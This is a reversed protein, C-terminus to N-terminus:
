KRLVTNAAAKKGAFTVSIADLGRRLVGAEQLDALPLPATELRRLVAARNRPLEARRAVHEQAFSL